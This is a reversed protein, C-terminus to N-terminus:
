IKYNKLWKTNVQGRLIWYTPNGEYVGLKALEQGCNPCLFSGEPHELEMEAELIRPFQMKVLGGKGGKQYVAVATKCHACSVELPRFRGKGKARPNKYIM